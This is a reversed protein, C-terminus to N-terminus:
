LRLLISRLPFWDLGGNGASNRLWITMKCLCRNALVAIATLLAELGLTHM